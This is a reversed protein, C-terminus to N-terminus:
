FLGAVAAARKASPRLARGTGATISGPSSRLWGLVAGFIIHGGVAMVITPGTLPFLMEQGHPSAILTVLLGGCVFLGYAIGARAGRFGLLVFAVALGGGNGGYRWLYGFMWAPELGLARGIHPIPDTPVLGLALFAFRYMDYFATAAMGAVLAGRVDAAISRDRRAIVSVVVLAPLLVHVALWRLDSVGFATAAILTVPVFGVGAVVLRCVRLDIPVLPATRTKASM